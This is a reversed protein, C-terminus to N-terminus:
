FSSSIGLDINVSANPIIKIFITLISVSIEVNIRPQYKNLMDPTILTIKVNKKKKKCLSEVAANFMENRPLIISLSLACLDESFSAAM